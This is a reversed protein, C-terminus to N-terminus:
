QPEKDDIQAKLWKEAEDWEGKVLLRSSGDSNPGSCMLRCIHRTGPLPAPGDNRDPHGDGVFVHGVEHAITDLLYPKNRNKGFKSGLIWCTRQDRITLGYANIGSSLPASNVM